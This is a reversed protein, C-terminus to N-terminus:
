ETELDLTTFPVRGFLVCLRGWNTLTRDLEWKARWVRRHHDRNSQVINHCRRCIALLNCHEHSRGGAPALHHPELARAETGIPCLPCLGFGRYHALIAEDVILRCPLSKLERFISPIESLFNGVGDQYLREADDLKDSHDAKHRMPKRGRKLGQKAKLPTRRELAATRRLRGSRKM